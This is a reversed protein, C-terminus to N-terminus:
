HVGDVQGIEVVEPVPYGLPAVLRQFRAEVDVSSGGTRKYLLGDGSRWVAGDVATRRKVFEWDSM